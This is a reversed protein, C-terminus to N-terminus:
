SCIKCKYQQKAQSEMVPHHTVVNSQLLTTVDM